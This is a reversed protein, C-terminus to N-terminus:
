HRHSLTGNGVFQPINLGEFGIGCGFGQRTVNGAISKCVCRRCAFRLQEVILKMGPKASVFSEPNPPAGFRTAM